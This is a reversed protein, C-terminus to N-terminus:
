PLVDIENTEIQPVDSPPRQEFGGLFLFKAPQHLRRAGGDQIVEGINRARPRCEPTKGILDALLRGQRCLQNEERVASLQRQLVDRRHEVREGLDVAELPLNLIEFALAAIEARRCM